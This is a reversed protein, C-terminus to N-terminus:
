YAQNTSPKVLLLWSVGLKMRTRKMTEIRAQAHAKAVKILSLEVRRDARKTANMSRHKTPAKMAATYKRRPIAM